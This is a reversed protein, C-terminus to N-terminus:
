PSQIMLPLGAQNAWGTLRESLDDPLETPSTIRLARGGVTNVVTTTAGPPLLGQILGLLAEDDPGMLPTSRLRQLFPQRLWSPFDPAQTAWALGRVTTLIEEVLDRVERVPATDTTTRAAELKPELAPWNRECAECVDPVRNVSLENMSVLLRLVGEKTMEIGNFTGLPQKVDAPALDIALPVVRSRDLSKALAGAEFNLWPASQNERTVCVIGFSTAELEKAIEDSWRTGPEIDTGSMWPQIEPKIYPLWDRLAKAVGKSKEGSWSLFVKV